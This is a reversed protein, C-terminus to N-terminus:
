KTTHSVSFRTADQSIHLLTCSGTLPKCVGKSQVPSRLVFNFPSFFFDISVGAGAM